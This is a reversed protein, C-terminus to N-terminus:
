LPPLKQQISRLAAAVIDAEPARVRTWEGSERLRRIEGQWVTENEFDWELIAKAARDSEKSGTEFYDIMTQLLSQANRNDM